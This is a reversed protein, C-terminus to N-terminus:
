PFFSFAEQKSFEVFAEAIGNRTLGDHNFLDHQVIFHGHEDRLPGGDADKEYIKDGSNDKSPLQQTAFFIDYDERRCCMPGIKADDNWKQVFLVSTKTGTHPKFSNPHLGVVALVRCREMIYDRLRKDSANNFRGQPLVVAMRGGPKLMDLNREIFLLDRGVAKELKGKANHALDYPNLLASQKIDGAFPPNAMLVDFAFERDDKGARLRRLRRWGEGYADDWDEDKATESWSRWDLSNLHLVNTEGDGAILNLCRSVRVSKEDFDIAFVKDKVYDICRAPKADMTFLHSQEIGEADMIARWVHFMSHVTFGASGAATDVVSEHEQPNLMKVCMDIVWRPTFYQGKEGKSTKNVLYEFADDIIDLNSNFLKWEELSGVCIQLHEPSMRIREDAAFVGPWKKKAEDFLATLANRVQSASDENRFRLHKYRGRHCEMEDFLKIFILKFVEEFVDVGANALVENELDVILDRLTRAQERKANREAEKAVLDDITWPQNVISSITQSATPLEAIEVFFNPDKRNWVITEAGRSWVALPAGTANTYSRLQEKGDKAKVQKVEIVAYLAESRHEDTIVIDAKKTADRGIVVPDEVRIRSLPYGYEGTLRDLWLQRVIEEPTVRIDKERKICRVFLKGGRDSVRRELREVEADSLLALARGVDGTMFNELVSM